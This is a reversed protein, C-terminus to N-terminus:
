AGNTWRGAVGPYAAEASAVAAEVSPYHAAALVSWGQSCHFLYAAVEGAYRCVAIAAQSQVEQTEYTLTVQCPLGLVSTFREIHAGDLEQPPATLESSM